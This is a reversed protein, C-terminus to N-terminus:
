YFLVKLDFSFYFGACWLPVLPIPWIKVPPGTSLPEMTWSSIPCNLKFNASSSGGGMECKEKLSKQPSSVFWTLLQACIAWGLKYAFSLTTAFQWLRIWVYWVWIYLVVDPKAHCTTNCELTQNEEGVLPSQDNISTLIPKSQKPASEM